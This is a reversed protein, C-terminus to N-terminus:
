HSNFVGLTKSELVDDDMKSCGLHAPSPLLATGPVRRRDLHWPVIWGWAPPGPCSRWSLEWDPVPFNQPLLFTLTIVHIAEAHFLEELARRPIHTPRGQHCHSEPSIESRVCSGASGWVVSRQLSHAKAKCLIWHCLASPM